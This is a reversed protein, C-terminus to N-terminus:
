FRDIKYFEMVDSHYYEELLILSNLLEHEKTGQMDRFNNLIHDRTILYANVHSSVESLPVRRRFRDKFGKLRQELTIVAIKAIKVDECRVVRYPQLDGKWKNCNTLFSVDSLDHCFVNEIAYASVVPHNLNANRGVQCCFVEIYYSGEDFRIPINRGTQRGVGYFRKTDFESPEPQDEIEPYMKWRKRGGDGEQPFDCQKVRKASDTMGTYM